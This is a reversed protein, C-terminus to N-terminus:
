WRGNQDGDRVIESKRKVCQIPRCFRVKRLGVSCMEVDDVRDRELRNVQYHSRLSCCLSGLGRGGVNKMSDTHDKMSRASYPKGIESIM